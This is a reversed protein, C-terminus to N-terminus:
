KIKLLYSKLILLPFFLIVSFFIPNTAGVFLIGVIGAKAGQALKDRKRTIHFVHVIYLWFIISGLIGFQRLLNAYSPEIAVTYSRTGITFFEVGVGTGFLFTYANSLWERVASDIHGIKVSTSYSDSSFKSLLSEFISPYFYVGVLVLIVVPM